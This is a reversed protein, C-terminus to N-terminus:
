FRFGGLIIDPRDARNPADLETPFAETCPGFEYSRRNAFTVELIEPFAINGRTLYTGYNNGHVHVVCFRQELRRLVREARDFWGTDTVRDFDHFECVMQTVQDFDGDSAADLVAWEDGEIDMKVICPQHDGLSQASQLSHDTGSAVSAIKSRHFRIQEHTAPPQDITYDFQHVTIGRDAMEIDWTMEAGVGLSLAFDVRSLDNLMVYGGDGAHGVRCKTMGLAAVPALCRGLTLLRQQVMAQDSAGAGSLGGGNGLHLSLEHTLVQSLHTDLHSMQRHLLESLHADLHSMQQHLLEPLADLLTRFHQSFREDLHATHSHSVENIREIGAQFQQSFRADLHAANNHVAQAIASTLQASQEAASADMRAQMAQLDGAFRAAIEEMKGDRSMMWSLNLGIRTVHWDDAMHGSM